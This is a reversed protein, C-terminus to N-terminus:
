EFDLGPARLSINALHAEPVSKLELEPRISLDLVASDGCLPPILRANVSLTVGVSKKDILL